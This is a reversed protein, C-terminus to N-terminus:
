EMGAWALKWTMFHKPDTFSLTAGATDSSGLQRESPHTLRYRMPGNAGGWGELTFFWGPTMQDM